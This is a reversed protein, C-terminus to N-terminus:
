RMKKIVNKVSDGNAQLENNFRELSNGYFLFDMGIKSHDLNRYYNLAITETGGTKCEGIIRLIRIKNKSMSRVERLIM